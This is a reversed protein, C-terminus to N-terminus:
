IKVTEIDISEFNVTISGFHFLLTHTVFAGGVSFYHEILDSPEFNETVSYNKVRKYRIIHYLNHYAGLLTLTLTRNLEKKSIFDQLEGNCVEMKVLYCDHLSERYEPSYWKENSIVRYVDKDILHENAKIYALNKDWHWM